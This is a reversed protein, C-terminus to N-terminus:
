CYARNAESARCWAIWQAAAREHEALTQSFVTEGTRLDVSVFYLWPGDVPEWAAKIALEGPLSIPGPPLGRFQYTNYRNETDARDADSTGAGGYLGTWYTVTADSQLPMNIDLRNYFVRSAKFFDEELRAERQVLGAMTLIEHWQEEPVGITRLRKEMEAVMRAIIEPAQVGPEFNYTSPFLYGELNGSPPNLGYDEPNLTAAELDALPVSTTDAIIELAQQLTKGEPITFRVQVRNAPDRLAAIASEASMGTLLSYTGPQFTITSDALLVSYVAEFSATVGANALTRAVTEGIDGRRIVIEIAPEAGGGEFNVVEEQAFYNVVRTGYENWVLWVGMGLLILIAASVSVFVGKGSSQPPREPRQARRSSAVVGAPNGEGGPLTNFIKDFESDNSM